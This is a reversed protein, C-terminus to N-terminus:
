EMNRPDRENLEKENFVKGCEGAAREAEAPTFFHALAIPHVLLPVKISSSLVMLVM